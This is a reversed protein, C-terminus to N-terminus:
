LKAKLSNRLKHLMKQLHDIKELLALADHEMIFGLDQSLIIQTELENSSGISISIFNIYDRTSHRSHGEAINSPISIASRRMQSTPSFLEEKPFKATIQYIIKVLERSKKWVELDKFSYVIERVEFVEERM